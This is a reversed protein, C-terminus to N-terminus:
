KYLGIGQHYNGFAHPLDFRARHQAREHNIPRFGYELLLFGSNPPNENENVIKSSSYPAIWCIKKIRAGGSVAIKEGDARAEFRLHTLRNTAWREVYPL